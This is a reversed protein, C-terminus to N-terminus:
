IPNVHVHLIRPKVVEVAVGKGGSFSGHLLREGNPYLKILLKAYTSPGRGNMRLPFVQLHPKTKVVKFPFYYCYDSLQKHNRINNIKKM